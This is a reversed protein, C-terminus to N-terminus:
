RSEHLRERMRRDSADSPAINGSKYAILASAVLCPPATDLIPSYDSLGFALLEPCADEGLLYALVPLIERQDSKLENLSMQYAAELDRETFSTAFLDELRQRFRSELPAPAFGEDESGYVAGYHVVDGTTVIATKADWHARLWDALTAATEFSGMMPNRAMGVYLPIVPLPEVHFVDAALRMVACFADLSFERKLLDNTDLRIGDPLPETLPEIPHTGFPTELRQKAQLFAGSVHAFAYAREEQSASEDMATCYTPVLSGHMVGLAIVQKINSRYLSAVVRAQIPGSYDVASHPFSLVARSGVMASLVDDDAAVRLREVLKARTGSRRLEADYYPKWEM